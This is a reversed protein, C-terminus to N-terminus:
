SVSQLDSVRLIYAKSTQEQGDREYKVSLNDGAQAAFLIDSVDFSQCIEYETDKVLIATIRDGEQLGLTQAISNENVTKILVDEVIKGYGLNQDYVYKSNRSEVTVGLVPKYVGSTTDDGDNAYYLINEVTGKAISLPVAYNINEDNTNGANTIGILKGEANFLGGGSNGSYLPTDIRLSRYQRVTGDVNLTIYENVTSIIGQTVSIGFGEPNGIAIATEGVHYEEALSVAQADKNVAKIDATKARLVAIDSVVSGGVYELAIAYDGVHYETYGDGDKDAQKDGDEDVTAPAGESGYLYGYIKRALKTGGNKASDAKDLYVVHYNTVIYTYGDSVTDMDYIVAAGTTYTTDSTTTYIPNWGIGGVINTTTVVFESYIKMASLLCKNIVLSPSDAKVTLYLDLFESYTLDPNGTVEKYHEYIDNASLDKGDTGNTVTFSGTSGDSYYITFIDSSGLSGTKEISTVYVSENSSCGAAFLGLALVLAFMLVFQMIKKVSKRM